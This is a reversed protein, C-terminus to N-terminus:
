SPFWPFFPSTRKQYERYAEGKSKLSQAEALPIGSVHVLLYYMIVPATIAIIGAASSLAFLAYGIWVVLEFFYNPHRSWRWLGSDCVKGQNSSKRKFAELQHDEGGIGILWVLFGWGEWVSWDSASNASAVLFPISLIIAILGQFIFMLFMKFESNEEGLREKLDTYRPDEVNWDFRQWLHWLLRGAWVTVMFTILLRRPLYGQGLVLYSWSALLFSATWGFDVIGANRRFFYVLWLLTMLSMILLFAAGIMELM